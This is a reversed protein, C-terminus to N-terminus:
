QGSQRNEASNRGPGQADSAAGDEDNGALSDAEEEAKRKAADKATAYLKELRAQRQQPTETLLELVDADEARAAALLGEVQKRQDAARALEAWFFEKAAEFTDCKAAKRSIAQVAEPMLMFLFLAGCANVSKEMSGRPNCKTWEALISPTLTFNRQYAKAMYVM